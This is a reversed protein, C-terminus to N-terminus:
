VLKFGFRMKEGVADSPSYFTSSMKAIEIVVVKDCFRVIMPDYFTKPQFPGCPDGRELSEAVSLGGLELDPVLGSSPKIM